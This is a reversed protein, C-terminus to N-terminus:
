QVTRWTGDPQLCATGTTSGSQYERCQQGNPGAFTPSTQNGVVSAPAPQIITTQPQAYVVQPAPSYVVPAPAYYYSPYYPYYAPGYYPYYPGGGYYGFSIGVGGHRGWYAHAPAAPLLAVALALAVLFYKPALRKMM